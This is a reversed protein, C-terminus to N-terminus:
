QPPSAMPRLRPVPHLKSASAVQAHQRGGFLTARAVAFCLPPPRASGRDPAGRRPGSRAGCLFPPGVMGNPCDSTGPSTRMLLDNLPRSRSTRVRHMHIGHPGSHALQERIQESRARCPVTPLPPCTVRAHVTRPPRDPCRLLGREVLVQHDGSPPSRSAVERGM